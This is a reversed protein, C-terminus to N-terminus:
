LWRDFSTIWEKSNLVDQWVSELFFFKFTECDHQVQGPSISSWYQQVLLSDMSFNAVIKSVNMELSKLWICVAVHQLVYSKFYHLISTTTESIPRLKNIKTGQFLSNLLYFPCIQTAIMLNDFKNKLTLAVMTTQHNRRRHHWSYIDESFQKRTPRYQNKM